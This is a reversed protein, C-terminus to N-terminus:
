ISENKKGRLSFSLFKLRFSFRKKQKERLVIREIKERGLDVAEAFTNKFVRTYIPKKEGAIILHLVLEYAQNSKKTIHAKVGATM